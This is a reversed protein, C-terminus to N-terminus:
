RLATVLDAALGPDTLDADASLLRRGTRMAVAAYSADYFTLNYDLALQAAVRHDEPHLGLPDGCIELLLGLATAIKEASWGSRLTLINGAEYVALETTRMALRGITSRALAGQPEREVPLFWKVAVSADIVWAEGATSTESM